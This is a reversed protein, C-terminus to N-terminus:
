LWPVACLSSPCGRHGELVGIKDTEELSGNSATRNFTDIVSRKRLCSPDMTCCRDAGSPILTEIRMPVHAHAPVLLCRILCDNSHVRRGLDSM